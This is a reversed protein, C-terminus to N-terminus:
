NKLLSSNNLVSTSYLFLVDANEFDIFKDLIGASMYRVDVLTIQSYGEALLPAISSGFSDRFLVLKKGEKNHRNEITVLSLPGSLFFEYPDKGELKKESYLPIIRNNEKDTVLYDEMEGNWLFQIEDKITGAPLQRGYAGRFFCGTTKVRYSLNKAQGMKNLLREAVDETKIMNWHPDTFYYDDAELLDSISIYEAFDAKDKITKEFEKYDMKLSDAYANKDPIVSIYVNNKEDLFSDNIKRFLNVGHEASKSNFPYERKIIHQGSFFLGRDDSKHFIHFASMVKIKRLYDRFPFHDGIYKEMNEMYSGDSISSWTLEPRECLKRREAESFTKEPMFLSTLLFFAIISVVTICLIEAKRKNNM